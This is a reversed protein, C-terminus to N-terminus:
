TILIKSDWGELRKVKLYFRGDGRTFVRRKEVGPGGFDPLRPAFIIVSNKPSGLFRCPM